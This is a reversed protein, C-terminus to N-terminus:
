VIRNISEGLEVECMGGSGSRIRNTHGRRRFAPAMWGLPQRGATYVTIWIRANWHTHTHIPAHTFETSICSVFHEATSFLHLAGVKKSSPFTTRRTEAEANNQVVHRRRFPSCPAQARSASTIAHVDRDGRKRIMGSYLHVTTDETRDRGM